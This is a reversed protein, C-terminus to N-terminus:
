FSVNIPYETFTANPSTLGQFTSKSKTLRKKNTINKELDIEKVYRDKPMMLEKSAELKTNVDSIAEDQKNSTDTGLNLAENLSSNSLNSTDEFNSHSDAENESM